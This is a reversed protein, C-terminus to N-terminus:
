LSIKAFHAQCGSHFATDPDIIPMGLHESLMETMHDSSVVNMRVLIRGLRRNGGVQMKLALDVKEQSTLGSEVLLEGLRKKVPGTQQKEASM